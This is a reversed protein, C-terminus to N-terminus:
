KLDSTPRWPRSKGSMYKKMIRPSGSEPGIQPFLPKDAGHGSLETLEKMINKASLVSAFSAHNFTISPVERSISKFLSLLAEENVNIGKAGYLM